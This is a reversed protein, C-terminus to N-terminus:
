AETRNHSQPDQAEERLDSGTQKETGVAETGDGDDGALILHGGEQNEKEM